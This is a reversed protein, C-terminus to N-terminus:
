SQLLRGKTKNAREKNTKTPLVRRPRKPGRRLREPGRRLREPGLVTVNNNVHCVGPTTWAAREIEEREALSDVSGRLTVHDGRTEITIRRQGDGFRRELAAEIHAKIEPRLSTQRVIVNDRIGKVGKLGSVASYAATKQYHWDVEGELVVWGHEVRVRVRDKPVLTTWSLVEIAAQAIEEDTVRTSAPLKVDLESVIARAGLVRAAAHEAAVKEAHSSVHGSLTVIGDGVAVGISAADLSPECSLEEEVHKRLREDPKM